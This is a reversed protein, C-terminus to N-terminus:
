RSKSGVFELAEGALSAWDRRSGPQLAFWEKMLRRHGPDFRQGEGAAVLEDVRRRPLKVVFEGRSSLLAFISGGVRLSSSGFGKGELTVGPQRLFHQVLKAYREAPTM